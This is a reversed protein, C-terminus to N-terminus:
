EPRLAYAAAFDCPTFNNAGDAYCPLAVIAVLTGGLKAQRGKEPVDWGRLHYSWPWSARFAMHRLAPAMAEILRTIPAALDALLRNAM